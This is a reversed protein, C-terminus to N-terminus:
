AHRFRSDDRSRNRNGNYIEKTSQNFAPPVHGGAM